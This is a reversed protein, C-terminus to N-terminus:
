TEICENITTDEVKKIDIKNNRKKPARISYDGLREICITNWIEQLHPIAYAFWAPNRKILVCSYVDLKWYLTKIWNANQTMNDDLWQNLETETTITFPMYVYMYEGDKVFEMICGKMKDDKSTFLTDNSDQLFDNYDAYEVFKSEVFDADLLDCVEM